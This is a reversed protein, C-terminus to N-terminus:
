FHRQQCLQAALYDLISIITKIDLLDHTKLWTPLQLVLDWKQGGPLTQARPVQSINIARRGSDPEPYNYKLRGNILYERSILWIISFYVLLGGSCAVYKSPRTLDRDTIFYKQRWTRTLATPRATSFTLSHEPKINVDSRTLTGPQVVSKYSHLWTNTSYLGRLWSWSIMEVLVDEWSGGGVEDELWTATRKTLMLAHPYGGAVTQWFQHANYQIM